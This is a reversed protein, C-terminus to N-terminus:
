AARRRARGGARCRTPRPKPAGGPAAGALGRLAAARDDDQLAVVRDDGVALPDRDVVQRAGAQRGGPGAVHQGPHDTRQDGAADLGERRGTAGDAGVGAGASDGGLAETASDTIAPSTISAIGAGAAADPSAQVRAIAGLPRDGLDVEAGDRVVAARQLRAQGAAGLEARDDLGVAVAVAHGAARLRSQAAARGPERDGGRLLRALQAVRCGPARMRVIPASLRRRAPRDGELGVGVDGDPPGAKAAQDRRARARRRADGARTWTLYSLPM